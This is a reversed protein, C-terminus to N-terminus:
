SGATPKSTCLLCILFFNPIPQSKLGCYTIVAYSCSCKGPLVVVQHHIVSVTLIYLWVKQILTSIYTTSSPGKKGLVTWRLCTIFFMLTMILLVSFYTYQSPIAEHMINSTCLSLIYWNLIWWGHKSFCPLLQQQWIHIFISRINLFPFNNGNWFYVETLSYSLIYQVTRRWFAVAAWSSLFGGASSSVCVNMVILYSTRM